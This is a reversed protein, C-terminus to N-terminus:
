WYAAIMGPIKNAMCNHINKGEGGIIANQNLCQLMRRYIILDKLTILNLWMLQINLFMMAM